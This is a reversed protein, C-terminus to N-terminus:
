LKFSIFITKIINQLINGQKFDEKQRSVRRTINKADKIMTVLFQQEEGIFSQSKDLYDKLQAIGDSCWEPVLELLATKTVFCCILHICLLKM